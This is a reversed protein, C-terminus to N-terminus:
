GGMFVAERHVKEGRDNTVEITELNTQTGAVPIFSEKVQEVV